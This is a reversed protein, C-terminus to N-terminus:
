SNEESANIKDMRNLFNNMTAMDAEGLPSEIARKEQPLYKFIADTSKSEGSMAKNILQRIIVEKKTVTKKAGNEKIVVPRELEDVLITQFNRSSKPRGDPNGSQGKQFQRNKPPKGYGVAYEDDDSM